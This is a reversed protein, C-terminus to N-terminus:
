KKEEERAIIGEIIACKFLTISYERELEKKIEASNENEEPQLTIEDIKEQIKQAKIKLNALDNHLKELQIGFM